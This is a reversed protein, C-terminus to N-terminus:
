LPKPLFPAPPLTQEASPLFPPHPAGDPANNGGGGGVVFGGGWVEEEQPFQLPVQLHPTPHTFAGLLINLKPM